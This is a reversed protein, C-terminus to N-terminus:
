DSLADFSGGDSFPGGEVEGDVTPWGDADADRPGADADRPGADADPKEPDVDDPEQDTPDTPDVYDIEETGVIANCGMLVAVVLSGAFSSFLRRTRMSRKM